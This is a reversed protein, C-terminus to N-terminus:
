NKVIKHISKGKETNVEFIYVGDILNSIDFSRSDITLSGLDQTFVVKGTVDTLKVNVNEANSFSSQMNLIGTTPNPYVKVVGAEITNMVSVPLRDHRTAWM